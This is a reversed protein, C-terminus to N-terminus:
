RAYKLIIIIIFISLAVLVVAIKRNRKTEREKKFDSSVRYPWDKACKKFEPYGPDKKVAEIVEKPIPKKFYEDDLIDDDWCHCNDHPIAPYRDPPYVGPGLGYLDQTALKDCIDERLHAGLNWKIGKIYPKNQAEDIHRKQNRRINEEVEAKRPKKILRNAAVTRKRLWEDEIEKGNEDYVKIKQRGM